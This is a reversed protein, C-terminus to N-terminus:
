HLLFTNVFYILAIVGLLSLSLCIARLIADSWFMTDVPRTAPNLVFLILLSVTELGVTVIIYKLDLFFAMLILFYFAFMWSEKSPFFWTIMNLNLILIFLFYNKVSKVYGAPLEDYGLAKKILAGGIVDEVLIVAVLFAIPLWSVTPYLHFLKLLPFAVAAATASMMIVALVTITVKKTYEQIVENNM